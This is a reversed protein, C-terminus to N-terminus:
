PQARSLYVSGAAGRNRLAAAVRVTMTPSLYGALDGPEVFRYEDLESAQLRVPVGDDLQGGDFVFHLIPRPRSGDAPMWDVVLLSGTYIQLGTEEEVERRCCDFPSEGEDLMGGPLTWHDRYNPKVLLVRGAPNTFVAAAAAFMTPLTAYWAVDEAASYTTSAAASSAPDPNEPVSRVRDGRSIETRCGM